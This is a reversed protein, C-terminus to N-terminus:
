EAVESMTLKGDVVQLLYQKGTATDKLKVADGGAAGGAVETTEGFDAKMEENGEDFNMTLNM